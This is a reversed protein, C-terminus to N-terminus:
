SVVPLHLASGHDADHYITHTSRQWNWQSMDSPKVRTSPNRDYLPFASAAIELRLRDGRAFVYSTPEL